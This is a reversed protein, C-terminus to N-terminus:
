KQGTESEPQHLLHQNHLQELLAQFIAEHQHVKEVTGDYHVIEMYPDVPQHNERYYVTVRAVEIVSGDKFVFKPMIIFSSIELVFTLTSVRSKDRQTGRSTREPKPKTAIKPPITQNDEKAPWGM